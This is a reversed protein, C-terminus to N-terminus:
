LDIGVKLKAVSAARARRRELEAEVDPKFKEENKAYVTDLKAAQADDDLGTFEAWEKSKAGWHAKLAAKVLSRAIAVEPAVGEAAKRGIDGAYYREIAEVIEKGKEEVTSDSGGVMDNFTRQVGYAIIKEKAAEPLKTWDVPFTKTEGSRRGITVTYITM